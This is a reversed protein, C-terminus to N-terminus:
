DMVDVGPPGRSCHEAMMTQGISALTKENQFCSPAKTVGHGGGAAWSLPTQDNVDPRDPSVDERELLLKVVGELGSGADWRFPTQGNNEPRNLSVDERELLLKVVGEHGMFAARRLPTQGLKDPKDPSVDDRQLLLNVVGAHGNVAAWSLPTQGFKDPKDPNVYKRGFLLSMVQPTGRRRGTSGPNIFLRSLFLRVVGERGSVAAWSLATQGYLWDRMDPQIHKQELLLKVVEERGCKAAWMLPTLSASDRENVGWRKTRILDIAVEAIGFYSVCHLPSFPKKSDHYPGRASEWLLM